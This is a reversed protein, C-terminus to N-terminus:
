RIGELIQRLRPFKRHLTRAAKVALPFGFSFQGRFQRRLILFRVYEGLPMTPPRRRTESYRVSDAYGPTSAKRRAIRERVLKGIKKELVPSSKLRFLGAM